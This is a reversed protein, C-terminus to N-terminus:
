LKETAVVTPWAVRGHSPRHSLPSTTHSQPVIDIVSDGENPHVPAQGHVGRGRRGRDPGDEREVPPNVHQRAPGAEASETTSGLEEDFAPAQPGSARSIISKRTPQLDLNDKASRKGPILGLKKAVAALHLFKASDASM